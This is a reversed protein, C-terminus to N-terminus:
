FSETAYKAVAEVNRDAIIQQIEEKKAGSNRLATEIRQWLKERKKQDLELYLESVLESLAQHGLDARNEYYRKIVGRQYPSLPKKQKAM